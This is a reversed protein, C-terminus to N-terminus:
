KVKRFVKKRNKIKKKKNTKTSNKKKSTHKNTKPRNQGVKVLTSSSVLKFTVSPNYVFSSKPDRRWGSWM